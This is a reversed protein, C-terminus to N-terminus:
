MLQLYSKRMPMRWVITDVIKHVHTHEVLHKSNFPTNVDLKFTNHMSSRIHYMCTRLDNSEIIHLKHQLSIWLKEDCFFHEECLHTECSEPAEPQHMIEKSSPTKGNLEASSPHFYHKGLLHTHTITSCIM